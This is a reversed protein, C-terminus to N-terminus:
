RSLFAVRRRLDFAFRTWMIRKSGCTDGDAQTGDQDTATGSTPHGVSAPDLTGTHLNKVM